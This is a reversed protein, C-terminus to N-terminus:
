AKTLSTDITDSADQIVGRVDVVAVSKGFLPRQGALLTVLAVVALLAAAALAVFVMGRLIPRRRAM